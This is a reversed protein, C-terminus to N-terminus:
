YGRFKMNDLTKRLEKDFDIVAYIMRHWHEREDYGSIPDSAIMKNIYNEKLTKIITQYASKEVFEKIEHLVTPDIIM